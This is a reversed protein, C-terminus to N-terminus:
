LWLAMTPNTRNFNCWTYVVVLSLVGALMGGYDLQYIEHSTPLSFIIASYLLVSIANLKLGGFRHLVLILTTAFFISTLSLIFWIAPPSRLIGMLHLFLRMLPRPLLWDQYTWITQSLSFYRYLDSHSPVFPDLFGPFFVLRGLIFGTSCLLFLKLVGFKEEPINFLIGPGGPGLAKNMRLPNSMKKPLSSFSSNSM